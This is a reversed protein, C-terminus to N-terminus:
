FEAPSMDVTCFPDDADILCAEHKSIMALSPVCGNPPAQRKRTLPIKPTGLNWGREAALSAVQKSITRFRAINSHVVLQQGRPAYGRTPKGHRGFSTEDVSFFQHRARVIEDRRRLFDAELESSRAAKGHYRAKKYSYGCRRVVTSALGSSINM